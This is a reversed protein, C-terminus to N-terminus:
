VIADLTINLRLMISNECMETFGCLRYDEREGGFLLARRRTGCPARIAQELAASLVVIIRDGGHQDAAGAM